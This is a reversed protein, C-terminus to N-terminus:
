WCRNAVAKGLDGALKVLYAGGGLAALVTLTAAAGGAVDDLDEANLEGTSTAEAVLTGFEILEDATFDYGQKKLEEAAAAPEMALLAKRQEDNELVKGIAQIREKTM